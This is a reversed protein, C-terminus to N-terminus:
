EHDGAEKLLSLVSKWLSGVGWGPWRMDVRRQAAFGEPGALHQRYWDFSPSNFFIHIPHFNLCQYDRSLDPVFNPMLGTRCERLLVDDEITIPVQVTGSFDKYPRIAVQEGVYLNSEHTLGLAVAVGTLNTGCILGHSRWVKAEPVLELCDSFAEPASRVEGPGLGLVPQFNPHIGLEYASLDSLQAASYGTTVFWTPCVSSDILTELVYEVCYWPAWDLDLTLLVGRADSGSTLVDEM